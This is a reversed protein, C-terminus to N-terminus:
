CLNTTRPILIILLSVLESTHISTYQESTHISTYQESTHITTHPIIFCRIYTCKVGRLYGRVVHGQTPSWLCYVCVM